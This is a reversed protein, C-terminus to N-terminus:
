SVWGGSTFVTIFYVLMILFVALLVAKVRSNKIFGLTVYVPFAVTIYRPMSSLTGTMTPVIIALWAFILYSPRVKLLHAKLMLGMAALSSVLEVLSIVFADSGFRVGTLIKAYRWLVQPLLVISGGSREAGFVPQAHWFYLADGFYLQLYLMYMILGIPVIYIAPCKILDTLFFLKRNKNSRRNDTEPSRNYWEFLIAPLLFVGTLRTASALAGSISSFLFNGKRAFYFSSLTLLFFISETYMSGFFFSFPFMILFLIIWKVKIDPYDLRLLMQFLLLAVFFFVSSLFIGLFVPSVGPFVSNLFRISLPYLPFFVQTYQHTYGIKAIDLYHVGDFNAFSWMWQPLGSPILLAEAYPFRPAFSRIMSGAYAAVFLGVRWILFLILIFLEM